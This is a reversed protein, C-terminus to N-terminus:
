GLRDREVAHQRMNSAKQKNLASQTNRYNRIEEHVGEVQGDNQHHM